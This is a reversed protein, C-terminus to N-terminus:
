FTIPQRVRGPPKQKGQPDEAKGTAVIVAIAGSCIGDPPHGAPTFLDKRTVYKHEDVLSEIYPCVIEGRELAQLYRSYLEVRDDGRAHFPVVDPHTIYDDVVSGVGMADHGGEEPYRDMRDNFQKIMKPWPEKQRREWAVVRWPHVDKRITTIVTTDSSKAWDAGTVYQGAPVPKEFEYYRNLQDSIVGYRTHFTKLITDESLLRGTISPEQLDYEIKWMDEHVRAKTDDFNEQTLWGGNTYITERWCNHAIIGEAIFSEYGPITLDWVEEYGHREVKAIIDSRVTYAALPTASRGLIPGDTNGQSGVNRGEVSGTNSQGTFSSSIGDDRYSNQVRTALLRGDMERITATRQIQDGAGNTARGSKDRHSLANYTPEEVTGAEIRGNREQHDDITPLVPHLDQISSIKAKRMRMENAVHIADGVALDGAYRWGRPTHVRHDPTCRLIRGSKLTLALTERYGRSWSHKVRAPVITRQDDMAYIIDGPKVDKITVIGAPTLIKSSSSVCWELVPFGKRQAEKIQNTMTGNPYQHTSSMTVQSRIDNYALPQGLAANLVDLDMEDIEDLRLRQPHPGRVSRSSAGIAILKNGAKTRTMFSTPEKSLFNQLPSSYRQTQGPLQIEYKWTEAEVEHVRQSQRASGGLVVVDAGDLLELISLAALTTTKGGLGRSAKWIVTPAEAFYSACLADLPSVHGPCYAKDPLKLGFFLELWQKVESRNRPSVWPKKEGNETIFELVTNPM